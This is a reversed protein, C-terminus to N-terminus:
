YGYECTRDFTKADLQSQLEGKWFVHQADKGYDDILAKFTAPDAGPVNSDEYFVESKDIAYTAVSCGEYPQHTKLPIFTKPDAGEIVKEGFYVHKTDRAYEHYYAGTIIPVFQQADAEPLLKGQYYVNRTDKAYRIEGGYWSDEDIGINVTTFTQPDAFEIKKGNYYVGNVDKTYMGSIDIVSF